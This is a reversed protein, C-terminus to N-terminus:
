TVGTHLRAVVIVPIFCHILLLYIQTCSIASLFMLLFYFYIASVFEFKDSDIVFAFLIIGKTLLSKFTLRLETVNVFSVTVNLCWFTAPVLLPVCGRRVDNERRRKHTTAKMWPGLMAQQSDQGM